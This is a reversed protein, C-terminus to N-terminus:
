SLESFTYDISWASQGSPAACKIRVYPEPCVAAPCSWFKLMALPSDCRVDVRLGAKEQEVSFRYGERCAPERDFDGLVHTVFGGKLIKEYGIVNGQFRYYENPTVPTVDWPFTIKWGPGAPEKGLTFFNHNYQTIDLDATGTNELRHDLVFGNEKLRIKKEYVYAWGKQPYDLRHIFRIRDAGTEWSWRGGDILPHVETYDFPETATKEVVGVGMKLWAEGPAAEESGPGGMAGDSRAFEEMPGAVSEHNEPSLYETWPSFITQGKWSMHLVNGGWEFRRGRYYGSDKDPLAIEATINDNRLIHNPYDM